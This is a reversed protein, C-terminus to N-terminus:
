KPTNKQEITLIFRELVYCFLVFLCTEIFNKFTTFFFFFNFLRAKFNEHNFDYELKNENMIAICCFNAHM